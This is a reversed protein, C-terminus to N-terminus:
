QNRHAPHPGSDPFVSGYTADKDQTYLGKASLWKTAARRNGCFHKNVMAQFGKRGIEQLHERGYLAKVMLGGRQQPSLTLWNRQVSAPLLIFNALNTPPASAEKLSPCKPSHGEKNKTAM